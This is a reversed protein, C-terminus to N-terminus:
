GNQNYYGNDDLGKFYIFFSSWYLSLDIVVVVKTEVEVEVMIKM